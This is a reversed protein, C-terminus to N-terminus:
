NIGKQILCWYHHQRLRKIEKDIIKANLQGPYDGYDECTSFPIINERFEKGPSLKVQLLRLGFLNLTKMLYEVSFAKEVPAAYSDKIYIEEPINYQKAEHTINFFRGAWKSKNEANGNWASLLMKRKFRHWFRGKPHYIGLLLIGEEDLLRAINKLAALHDPIHHLVGICTIIDFSRSPLNLNCIDTNIFYAKRDIKNDSFYKRALNLANLSIDVGVSVSAEVAHLAFNFGCGCGADLTRKQYLSVPFVWNKWENRLNKLRENLREAPLTKHYPWKEYFERVRLTEPCNSINVFIIDRNKESLVPNSNTSLYKLSNILSISKEDM